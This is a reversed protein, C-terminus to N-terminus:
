RTAAPRPPGDPVTPCRAPRRHPVREVQGSRGAGDTEPDLSVRRRVRDWGVPRGAAGHKSMRAAVWAAQLEYAQDANLNGPHKLVSHPIGGSAALQSAYRALANPPSWGAPAPRSRATVAPTTPPARIASTCSSRRHRRRQRDHLPPARRRRARRQGDVPRRCPVPGSVRQSYYATALVFAEGMQFDWFLQKAFEDWSTYLDPDPNNMWDAPLTPSAGVLYPRCRRRSHRQELRPLGLRHRDSAAVRGYWNPTQWEAPWGAWAQPRRSGPWPTYRCWRRHVRGTRIVRDDHPGVTAPPVSAPPNDNPTPRPFAAREAVLLGSATRSEM